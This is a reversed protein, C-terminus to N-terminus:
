PLYEPHKVGAKVDSCFLGWHPLAHNRRQKIVNRLTQYNMCWVGRQIFGGPLMAHIKYLSLGDAIAKVIGEATELSCSGDEFLGLVGEIGYADMRAEVDKILTHMTSARQKTSIRYADAQKWWYLPATVDLWVQMSELFKDHGGGKGCLKLSVAHLREKVHDPLSDHCAHQTTLGHSLGMGFLAEGYGEDRLVKTKIHM